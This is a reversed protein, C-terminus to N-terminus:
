CQEGQWEFRQDDQPFLRLVNEWFDPYRDGTPRSNLILVLRGMSLAKAALQYLQVVSDWNGREISDENLVLATPIEGDYSKTADHGYKAM